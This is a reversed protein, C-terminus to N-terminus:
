SENLQKRLKKDLYRKMTNGEDKSLVEQIHELELKRMTEDKRHQGTSIRLNRRKRKGTHKRGLNMQRDRKLMIYLM